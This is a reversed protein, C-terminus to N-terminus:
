VRVGVFMPRVRVPPPAPALPVVRSLTTLVVISMFAFIFVVVAFAAGVAYELRVTAVGQSIVVAVGLLAVGLVVLRSDV